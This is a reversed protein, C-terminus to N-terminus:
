VVQHSRPRTSPIATLERKRQCHHDNEYAYNRRGFPLRSGDGVRRLVIAQNCLHCVSQKELPFGTDDAQEKRPKPLNM